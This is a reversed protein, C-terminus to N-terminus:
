SEADAWPFSTLLKRRGAVTIPVFAAHIGSDHGLYSPFARGTPHVLALLGSCHRFREVNGSPPSSTIHKREDDTKGGNNGETIGCSAVIRVREGYRAAIPLREATWGHCACRAGDAKGWLGIQSKTEATM